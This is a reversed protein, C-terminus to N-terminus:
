GFEVEHGLQGPELQFGPVCVPGAGFEGVLRTGVHGDVAEQRLGLPPPSVHVGMAGSRPLPWKIDAQVALLTRHRASFARLFLKAVLPGSPIAFDGSSRAGTGAPFPVGASVDVRSSISANRSRTRVISRAAGAPGRPRKIKARSAVM